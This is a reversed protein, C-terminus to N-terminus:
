FSQTEDCEYFCDSKWRFVNHEIYDAIRNQEEVTRIMHDHFRPQWAFMIRNTNAFCSVARKLGGVATSLLGRKHSVLQMQENIVTNKWRSPNSSRSSTCVSSQLSSTCMTEVTPTESHIVVIAHVHNPMVVWLPIQAYPYHSSVNRLQEDVYGGVASLHMVSSPSLAQNCAIEGFYHERNKTCITVFYVGGNYNHWSARSSSIRYRNQFLDTSM